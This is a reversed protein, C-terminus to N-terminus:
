QGKPILKYNEGLISKRVEHIKEKVEKKSHDQYRKKMMAKKEDSTKSGFKAFNCTIQGDSEEKQLELLEGCELCKPHNRLILKQEIESWMFTVKSVFIETNFLKCKKNKCKLRM